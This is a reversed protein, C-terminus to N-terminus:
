CSLHRSYIVVVINMIVDLLSVSLDSTKGQEMASVIASLDFSM